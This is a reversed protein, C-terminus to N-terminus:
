MVGGDYAGVIRFLGFAQLRALHVYQQIRHLQNSYRKELTPVIEDDFALALIFFEDTPTFVWEFTISGDVVSAIASPQTLAVEDLFTQEM